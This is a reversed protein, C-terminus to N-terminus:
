SINNPHCQSQWHKFPPTAHGLVPSAVGGEIQIQATIPEVEISASRATLVFWAATITTCLFVTVTVHLWRFKYSFHAKKDVNPAFDIPVIADTSGDAPNSDNVISM